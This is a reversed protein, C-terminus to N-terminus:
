PGLKALKGQRAAEIARETDEPLLLREAVERAAERKVAAVYAEDDAYREAISPRPDHVEKRAAETPAFPVVAGKDEHLPVIIESAERWDAAAIRFKLQRFPVCCNHRLDGQEL